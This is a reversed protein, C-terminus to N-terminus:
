FRTRATSRNRAPRDLTERSVAGAVGVDLPAAEQNAGEPDADVAFSEMVLASPNDDTWRVQWPVFAGRWGACIGLGVRPGVVGVPARGPPRDRPWRRKVHFAGPCM